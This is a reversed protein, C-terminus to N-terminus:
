SGRTIRGRMAARIGKEFVADVVGDLAQRLLIAVEEEVVLGVRRRTTEEDQPLDFLETLDIGKSHREGSLIGSHKLFFHPGGM